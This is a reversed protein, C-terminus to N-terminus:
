PTSRPTAAQKFAKLAKALREFAADIPDTM